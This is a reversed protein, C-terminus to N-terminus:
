AHDTRPRRLERRKAIDAEVLNWFARRGGLGESLGHWYQLNFIASYAAHSVRPMALASATHALAAATANFVKVLRGRGVHTLALLRLPARRRSFDWAAHMLIDPRGKDRGMVADYHGYQQPIRLWEQYTRQPDHHVIAEPLFRFSGGKDQLRYAFEIDEARRFTPDFLGADIAAQRTFSANATYFQRPTARWEGARLHQYQKELTVAEWQLWPSLRKQLPLLMVGMAALGKHNRHAELHRRLLDPAAEVDDDLSIILDSEAM